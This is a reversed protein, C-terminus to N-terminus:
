KMGHSEEWPCAQYLTCCPRGVKKLRPGFKSNWFNPSGFSLRLKDKKGLSFDESQNRPLKWFFLDESLNSRKKQWFTPSSWCFFTKACIQDNKEASFYTFVLFFSKTPNEAVWLTLASADVLWGVCFGKAPWKHGTPRTNSARSIRYVTTCAFTALFYFFFFSTCTDLTHANVAASM